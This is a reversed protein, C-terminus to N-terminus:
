KRDCVFRGAFIQSDPVFFGLAGIKVALHTDLYWPFFVFRLCPICSASGDEFAESQGRPLRKVCKVTFLQEFFVIPFLVGVLSRLSGASLHSVDEGGQV